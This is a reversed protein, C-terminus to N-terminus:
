KDAAGADIWKKVMDISAPDLKGSPPMRGSELTRYLPSSNANGPEVKKTVGAHNTLDYASKAGPSGDHCPMCKATFLPIIDKSFSPGALSEADDRAGAAIWRRLIDTQSSDLGAGAPHNGDKVYVYLLSAEPKGAVLNPASDRGAAFLDSYSEVSYGGGPNAASHCSLCSADLIPRVDRAFSVAPAPSKAPPRGTGCAALLLGLAPVLAPKM